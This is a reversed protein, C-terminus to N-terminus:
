VFNQSAHTAIKVADTKATEEDKAKKAAKALELYKTKFINNVEIAEGVTDIGGQLAGNKEAEAIAYM